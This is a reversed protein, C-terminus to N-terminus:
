KKSETLGAIPAAICLCFNKTDRVVYIERLLKRLVRESTFLTGFRTKKPFTVCAMLWEMRSRIPNSFAAMQGQATTARTM